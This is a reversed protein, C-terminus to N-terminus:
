QSKGSVSSTIVADSITTDIFSLKQSFSTYIILIISFTVSLAYKM